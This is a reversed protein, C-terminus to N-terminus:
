VYGGYSGFQGTSINPRFTDAIPNGSLKLDASIVPSEPFGSSTSGTRLYSRVRPENSKTPPTHERRGARMETTKEPMFDCYMNSM